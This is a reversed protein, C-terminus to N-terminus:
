CDQQLEDASSQLMSKCLLHQGFRSSMLQPMIVDLIVTKHQEQLSRPVTVKMTTTDVSCLIELNLITRLEQRTVLM